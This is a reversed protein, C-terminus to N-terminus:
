GLELMILIVWFQVVSYFSAMCVICRRRIFIFGSLKEGSVTQVSQALFGILYVCMKDKVMYVHIFVYKFDCNVWQKRLLWTFKRKYSLCCYGFYMVMM